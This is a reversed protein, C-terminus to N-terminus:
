ADYHVIHEISAPLNQLKTRLFTPYLRTEELDDLDHWQFILKIGQENGFFPEQYKRLPSDSALHMLFYLALEHYSLAEYEFFNEVVWVLHEVEVQVGLEERMERVLTDQAQELMEARGGPLAWFDDKEARHLLVRGGDFAMGVIRYNFRINGEQYTIM